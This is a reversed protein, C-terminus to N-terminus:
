QNEIRGIMLLGGPSQSDDADFGSYHKRRRWFWLKWNLNTKLLNLIDFGRGASGALLPFKKPSKVKRNLQDTKLKNIRRATVRTWHGKTATQTMRTLDSSIRRRCSLNMRSGGRLANKM